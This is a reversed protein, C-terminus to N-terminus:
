SNKGCFAFFLQRSESLSGFFGHGGTRYKIIITNNSRYLGFCLLLFSSWFIMFIVGMRSCFQLREAVIGFLFLNKKCVNFGFALSINKNQGLNWFLCSSSCSFLVSLSFDPLFFGLSIYESITSSIKKFFVKKATCQLQLRLEEKSYFYIQPFVFVLKQLTSLM